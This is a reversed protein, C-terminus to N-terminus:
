GPPSEPVPDSLVALGQDPAGAQFGSAARIAGEQGLIAIEFGGLRGAM